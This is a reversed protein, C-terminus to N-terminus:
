PARVYVSALCLRSPSHHQIDHHDARILCSPTGTANGATTFLFPLITSVANPRLGMTTVWENLNIRIIRYAWKLLGVEVDGPVLQFRELSFDTGVTALPVMMSAM